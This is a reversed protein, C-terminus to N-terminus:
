KNNSNESIKVALLIIANKDDPLELKNKEVLKWTNLKLPVKGNTIVSTIQPKGVDLDVQKLYERGNIFKLALKYNLNFTNKDNKELVISFIMGPSDNSALVCLKYTKDKLSVPEFYQTESSLVMEAKQEIGVLIKPSSKMININVNKYKKEGKIAHDLIDNCIEDNIVSNLHKVVILKSEMLFIKKSNGLIIFPFLSILLIIFSKKIM